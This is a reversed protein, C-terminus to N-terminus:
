KWTSVMGGKATGARPSGSINTSALQRIPDARNAVSRLVRRFISAIGGAPQAFRVGRAGSGIDIARGPSNENARDDARAPPRHRAPRPKLSFRPWGSANRARTFLRLRVAAVGPSRHLQHPQQECLCLPQHRGCAAASIQSHRCPQPTVVVDQWHLRYTYPATSRNISSYGRSPCNSFSSVGFVFRDIVSVQSPLRRRSDM